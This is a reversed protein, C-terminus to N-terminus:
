REKELFGALAETGYGQNMYEAAIAIGLRASGQTNIERLGIRGVIVRGIAGNPVTEVVFERRTSDGSRSLFWWDREAPSQIPLNYSLLLPDTYPRWRAIEDVDPRELARIALRKTRAIPPPTVRGGSLRNRDDPVQDQGM